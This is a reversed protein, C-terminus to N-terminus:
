AKQWEQDIAKIRDLPVRTANQASVAAALVPDAIVPLLQQRAYAKFRPSAHPNADILGGLRDALGAPVAAAGAHSAALALCAAIFVHMRPGRRGASGDVAM